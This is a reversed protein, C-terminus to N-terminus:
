GETLLMIVPRGIQDCLAHLKSNLGGRTRGIRRPVGEGKKLSAATRHAKLHMADVVLEDPEVSGDGFCASAQRCNRQLRVHHVRELDLPQNQILLDMGVDVGKGIM